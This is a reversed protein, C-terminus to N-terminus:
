RTLDRLDASRTQARSRLVELRGDGPIQVYIPAAGRAAAAALAPSHCFTM